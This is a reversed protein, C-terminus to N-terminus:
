QCLDIVLAIALFIIPLAEMEFSIFLADRNKKIKELAWTTMLFPILLLLNLSLIENTISLEALLMIAAIGNTFHARYFAKQTSKQAETQLNSDDFDLDRLDFAIALSYIWFFVLLSRLIVLELPEHSIMMPVFACVWAWSFSILPLKFGPYSRLGKKFLPTSPYLLSILVAPLLLLIMTWSFSLMLIAALFGALLSVILITKKHAHTFRLVPHEDSTKQGDSESLHMYGYASLTAFFIFFSYYLDEFHVVELWSLPFSTASLAVIVNGYAM